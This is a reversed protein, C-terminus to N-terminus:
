EEIREEQIGREVHAALRGIQRIEEIDLRTVKPGLKYTPWIGARIQRRAHEVSVGLEKATQSVNTLM